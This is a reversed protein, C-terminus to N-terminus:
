RATVASAEHPDAYSDHLGMSESSDVLLILTSPIYETKSFVLVPELLMILVGVLATLRLAVLGWRSVRRLQKGERRYVVFVMWVVVAAVLALMLARDSAPMALWELRWAGGAAWAARHLNFLIELLHTM